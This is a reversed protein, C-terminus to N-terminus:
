LTSIGLEMTTASATCAATIDARVQSGICYPLAHESEAGGCMKQKANQTIKLIRMINSVLLCGQCVDAQKRM